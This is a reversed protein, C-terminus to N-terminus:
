SGLQEVKGNSVKYIEDCRDLTSTRHAIIIITKNVGITYIEEMIQQATNDDLASTAEDIILVEPDNYFARAIAIRQKQGGSLMIGGEGVPLSHGGAAVVFDFIKALKLAKNVKDENYTSGMAINQGISGDFLYVNQPIYGIASRWSKANKHNVIQNDVLVNGSRPTLLGAIIDILTSKGSGSEGIFAIKSRKKIVININSLIPKGNVYEFSIDKLTINNKLFIQFNDLKESEIKLEKKVIALAGQYYMLQNYGYLIKTASPLMRYMAVLFFTLPGLYYTIDAQGDWVIYTVIIVIIAFALLELFLKPVASFTLNTVNAKGFDLGASEFDSLASNKTSMLKIIKFNGFSRNAVEFLFKQTNARTIGAQRIKLSITKTMLLMFVAAFITIYATVKFNVVIMLAYIFLLVFIESIILFVTSYLSALFYAETVISKTLSSSNKSLFEKYPMGLYRGLLRTSLSLYMKQTFKSVTYVYYLNFSARFLYFGILCMGFIIVFEVGNEVGLLSSARLYYENTQIVNLDSAVGIFPMIVSVGLMEILGIIISLFCLIYSQVLENGVLFCYLTKINKFM